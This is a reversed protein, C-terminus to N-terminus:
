YEYEDFLYKGVRAIFISCRRQPSVQTCFANVILCVADIPGEILGPNRKSCISKALGNVTDRIPNLDYPIRLSTERTNHNVLGVWSASVRVFFRSMVLNFGTGTLAAMSITIPVLFEKFGIFDGFGVDKGQADSKREYSPFADSTTADVLKNTC